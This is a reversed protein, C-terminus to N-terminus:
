KNGLKDKLKEVYDEDYIEFFEIAKKLVNLDKENKLKEKLYREIDPFKKCIEIAEVKLGSEFIKKAFERNECSKIYDIIIKKLIEDSNKLIDIILGLDEERKLCPMNFFLYALINKKTNLQKLINKLLFYYEKHNIMYDISEYTDKDDKFNEVFDRADDFERFRLVKDEEFSKFM